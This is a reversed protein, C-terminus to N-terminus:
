QIRQLTVSGQITVKDTYNCRDDSTKEDRYTQEFSRTLEKNLKPLRLKTRYENGIIGYNFTATTAGKKWARSAALDEFKFENKPTQSRAPPLYPDNGTRELTTQNTGRETMTEGLYGRQESIREVTYTEQTRHADNTVSKCDSTTVSLITQQAVFFYRAPKKKKKKAATQVPPDAPVPSLAQAAPATLALALLAAGLAPLRTRM